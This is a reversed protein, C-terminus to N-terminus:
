FQKCCDWAVIFKFNFPVNLLFYCPVRLESEGLVEVKYGPSLMNM